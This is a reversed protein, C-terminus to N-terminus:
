NWPPDGQLRWWADAAQHSWAEEEVCAGLEACLRDADPPRGACDKSLCAMVLSELRRPIPQPSRSSLPPASSQAHHRLLEGAIEAEFPRVGSLLWYAVCGLAYLDTRPEAELGFIQEPAMYGPTGMLLGPHTLRSVSPAEAPRTLGFDLVKVFDADRGYRCLFLNSPKIDRHVLGQAHAEGLSHCVQQLWHVARRPEVPGFRYVFHEANLGELLEMAYFLTGGESMGFDFLEVTHPSRLSATVQAERTFRLVATDRQETPGQLREPLILKVAAPRALFLHRARWVEGMGGHALPELLEYSGVTRAAAIQRGAGHITRAAVSSIGVTIAGTVGTAWYDSAQVDIVRVSELLALGLPMSLASLSSFVLAVRPPAPVLLPFLLIVPVTWTLSPVHGTRVFAAAPAALSILASFAVETALAAGLVSRDGLARQSAVVFLLIGLGMGLLDHMVDIRRELPSAPIGGSLELALFLGYAAAGIAAAVRVRHRSERVLDAPLELASTSRPALAELLRAPFVRRVSAIATSRFRSGRVTGRGLPRTSVVPDM